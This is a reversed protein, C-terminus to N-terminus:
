FQMIIEQLFQMFLMVKLFGEKKLLKRLKKWRNM